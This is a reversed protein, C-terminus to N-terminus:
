NTPPPAEREMDRPMERQETETMERQLKEAEQVRRELQSVREDLLTQVDRQEIEQRATRLRDIQQEDRQVLATLFMRDFEQGEAQRLREVMQRGEMERQRAMPGPEGELDIEMKRAMQMLKRDATRHEAALQQGYKKVQPSEARKQAMQGMQIALRNEQHLQVLVEKMQEHGEAREPTREREPQAPQEPQASATTGVFVLALVAAIMAFRSRATTKRLM